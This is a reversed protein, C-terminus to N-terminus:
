MIKFLSFGIKFFEKVIRWIKGIRTLSPKLVKNGKRFNTKWLQVIALAFNLYKLIEGIPLGNLAEPQRSLDGILEKLRTESIKIKKMDFM